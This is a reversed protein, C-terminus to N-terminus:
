TKCGYHKQVAPMYANLFEELDTRAHAYLENKALNLSIAAFVKKGSPCTATAQAQLSGIGLKGQFKRPQKRVFASSYSYHQGDPDHKVQFYFHDDVYISCANEASPLKEKKQTVREGKPLLPTIASTPTKVGCISRPAPPKSAGCGAVLVAPLLLLAAIHKTNTV